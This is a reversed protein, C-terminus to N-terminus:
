RRRSKPRGTIRETREMVPREIRDEDMYDGGAEDVNSLFDSGRLDIETKLTRKIDEQKADVDAAHRKAAESEAVAFQIRQEIGRLLDESTALWSGLGQDLGALDEQRVDRGIVDHVQLCHLKQDLKGKVLNTYFCETIIFDELERVTPINLQEMLVAYPISKSKMALHAVTLQKLKLTQQPNLPPLSAAQDTYQSWTGFAFLQLLNFFPSLEGTQIDCVSPVDILEGFAFLGAESVAKAILDAVGRGRAGKALLLYQQIKAEDFTAM